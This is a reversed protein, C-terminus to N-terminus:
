SMVGARHAKEGGALAPNFAFRHALEVGRCLEIAHAVGDTERIQMRAFARRDTSREHSLTHDVRVQDTPVDTAAHPQEFRVEDTTIGLEIAPGFQLEIEFVRPILEDAVKEGLAIEFGRLEIRREARDAAAIVEGLQLRDLLNELGVLELLKAQALLLKDHENVAARTTQTFGDQPSVHILVEAASDFRIRESRLLIEAAVVESNAPSLCIAFENRL